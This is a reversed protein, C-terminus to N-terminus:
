PGAAGAPTRDPWLLSAVVNLVLAVTFAVTLNYFGGVAGLPELLGADQLQKWAIALVFGSLMGALAGARSARPWLLALLMQPGFAAGLIAWGYTLVYTYVKVEADLVIAMAAIGLGFVTLRNVFLHGRGRDGRGSLRGYLDSTCASAAVVLQSDATSCIAALVAALALGSIAGPLMSRAALVLGNEGANSAGEALQNALPATWEAGEITMARVLLGITVAGWFIMAGWIVSVTGAVWADRRDRMAMFRVLIHPSGIFGLNIGLAGSGLLFGVLAMGTETPGFRLLVGDDVSGLTQRLATYGGGDLLLWAPFVALVGVMLIGQATDTWCAARFGGLVTYFLVIATGILVGVVYDSGGDGPMFSGLGPFAAAFATGAAAFQAAVYLWMAVLIVVVSLIRLLPMRERFRLAFFDPVTVAGLTGSAERLRPAIVFWNVIFGLLTGPLIWYASFGSTFAWGVLGLTVWGSESSASASLAAVWPNLGRGALYYDEDTDAARRASLVGIAVIFLTYISFAVAFSM